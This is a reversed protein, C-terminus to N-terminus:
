PNSVINQFLTAVEGLKIPHSRPTLGAINAVLGRIDDATKGQARMSKLSESLIRKSLKQGQMNTILKHHAFQPTECGPNIIDRMALQRATSALLDEGRVILNIGQELDDIVVAYQYTWQRLRDRIMVDGGQRFPNGTVNRQILDRFSFTQDPIRLRLSTDKQDFPIKRDRCTGPYHLEGSNQGTEIQIDKRSCSCAYVLNRRMLDELHKRYVEGRHSQRWLNTPIKVGLWELDEIISAEFEPRCRSLDHDELRLSIDAELNSAIGQVYMVHLVHGLHLHGTPSPALRTRLTPM